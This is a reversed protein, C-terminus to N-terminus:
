PRRRASRQADRLAGELAHSELSGVPAPSVPFSALLSVVQELLSDIGARELRGRSVMSAVRQVREALYRFTYSGPDARVLGLAVVSARRASAPATSDGPGMAAVEALLRALAAAKEDPVAIATPGSLGATMNLAGSLRRELDIRERQTLARLIFRSRAFARMLNDLATREHQLAVDLNSETLATSARSMARIARMMDVRGQNQQRGALLDGEAEAEAVENLDLTGAADGAVDELEGGMMFVFEARVSRQEAALLRSEGLVSDAPISARRARLRETKLIVMQQSVAYRDRQDDAAFGEAAIAGPTVVELVYSESEVPPAGPRKDTAIARYVVLDGPALDLRDLQWTGRATWTRADEQSVSVPVEREIFTFREGTGSVATYRLRVSALAIDDNANITVPISGPVSSFFLDRGPSALTVHPPRDPAVSLGILQQVGPRGTSDRPEIAIVGDSEAILTTSFADGERRMTRTDTMTELGVSAARATVRVEIRSTALAEVRSPNVFSARALGTYVPPIVTVHVQRVVPVAARFPLVDIVRGALTPRQLSVALIVTGAALAILSPRAPFLKAVDLGEVIRAAHAMVADPVYGRKGAPLEAATVVLNRGVATRRELRQAIASLSRWWGFQWRDGLTVRVIVVLVVVTALAAVPPTAVLVLLAAAVAGVAIGEAARLLFLRHRVRLLFREVTTSEPWANM